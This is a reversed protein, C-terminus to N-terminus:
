KMRLSFTVQEFSEVEKGLLAPLMFQLQVGALVHKKSGCHPITPTKNAHSTHWVIAICFVFIIKTTELALIIETIKVARSIDGDSNNRSCDGDFNIRSCDGDTNNRSRDDDSNNRL